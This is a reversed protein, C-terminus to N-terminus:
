NTPGKFDVGRHTISEKHDWTETDLNGRRVFVNAVLSSDDWSLMVRRKVVNVAGDKFLAM